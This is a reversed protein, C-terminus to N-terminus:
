KNPTTVKLQAQTGIKVLMSYDSYIKVIDTGSNSTNVLARILIKKTNGLHALTTSTLTTETIKNIPHQVKFNNQASGPSAASIVETSSHFLSDLINYHDDAFYLQVYSEAPFWNTINVKFKIWDIMNIATPFSFDLTDQITFGWAKGYFPLEVMVDVKFLSTDLIFNQLTNGNPNLSGTLSYIIQRPSLSIANVVNSTNKNLIISDSKVTGIESMSPYKMQYPNPLASGSIALSGNIASEAELTNFAVNIPLGFSNYIYLKIKPDELTFHGKAANAYVDLHITDASINITQQGLYGFIKQYKINAFSQTFQLNYSPQLTNPQPKHLITKINFNISDHNVHIKYNSLDYNLSLTRPIIGTYIYPIQTTFPVGNLTVGPLTVIIDADDNLDVTFDLNFDGKKLFISDYKGGNTAAFKFSKTMNLTDNEWMNIPLTLVANPITLTQVFSYNQNPITILNEARQSLVNGSYMLVVQGTNDTQFIQSAGTQKILNKFTLNSSILPAALNPDWEPKAIKKLDFDDKICSSIVIFLIFFIINRHKLKRIIQYIDM